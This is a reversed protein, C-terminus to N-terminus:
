DDLGLKFVYVYKNLSLYSLVDKVPVAFVVALWLDDCVYIYTSMRIIIKERIRTVKLLKPEVHTIVSLNSGLCLNWMWEVYKVNM